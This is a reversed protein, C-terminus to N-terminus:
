KMLEAVVQPTVKGPSNCFDFAEPWDETQTAQKIKIRLQQYEDDSCTRNKVQCCFLYLLYRSNDCFELCESIPMLQLEHALSYHDDTREIEDYDENEPLNVRHHFRQLKAAIKEDASLSNDTTILAITWHFSHYLSWGAGDDRAIAVKHLCWRMFDLYEPQPLDVPDFQKQLKMFVEDVIWYSPFIKEIVIYMNNWLDINIPNSMMFDVFLAALYEYGLPSPTQSPLEPLRREEDFQTAIFRLALTIEDITRVSPWVIERFFRTPIWRGLQSCKFTQLTATSNRKHRSEERALSCRLLSRPCRKLPKFLHRSNDLLDLLIKSDAESRSDVIHTLYDYYFIGMGDRRLIIYLMDFHSKSLKPAVPLNQARKLCPSLIQLLRVWACFDRLEVCRMLQWELRQRCKQFAMDHQRSAATESPPAPMMETFLPVSSPMDSCYQRFQLATEEFTRLTFAPSLSEDFDVRDWNLRLNAPIRGNIRTLGITRLHEHYLTRLHTCVHQLRLEPQTEFLSLTQICISLVSIAM